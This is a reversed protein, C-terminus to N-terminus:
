VFGTQSSPEPYVEEDEIPDDDFYEDSVAIGPDAEQHQPSAQPPVDGERAAELRRAQASPTEREVCAIPQTLEHEDGYFPRTALNVAFRACEIDHRIHTWHFFEDTHLEGGIALWYEFLRDENTAFWLRYDHVHTNVFAPLPIVQVTIQQPFNM